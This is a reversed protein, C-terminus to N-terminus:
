NLGAEKFARLAGPHFPFPGFDDLSDATVSNLLRHAQGLKDIHKIWSSVLKYAIEEDLDPSAVIGTRMAPARYADPYNKYFGAPITYMIGGLDSIVKEMAAEPWPVLIWERADMMQYYTSSGEVGLLCVVDTVGDQWYELQDAGAAYIVRGGREEIGAISVGSAEMLADCMLSGANGKRNNAYTFKLDPKALDAASKIGHEKVFSRDLMLQSPGGAFIQIMSVTKLPAKFPDQGRKAIGATVDYTVGMEVRGQDALSLNAFDGGSTQYTLTSNPYEEKLANNLAAALTSWFGGASAGAITVNFDDAALTVGPGMAVMAAMAIGCLARRGKWFQKM